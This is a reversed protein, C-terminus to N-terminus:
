AEKQYALREDGSELHIIGCYKFGLSSLLKQMPINDRHTDIKLNECQSYAWMLSFKAAGKFRQSSAIRHVVGYPADNKWNGNYITNYTPDIGSKYYFVCGTVGDLTCLYTDDLTSEVLSYPPHVTGWQDGNGERRMFARANEYITMIEPLDERTAKRIIM